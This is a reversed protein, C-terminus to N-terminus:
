QRLWDTTRGSHGSGAVRDDDAGAQGAEGTCPCKHPRAPLHEHNLSGVAHTTAHGGVRDIAEPDVTAELDIEIGIWLAPTLEVKRREPQARKLGAGEHGLPASQPGHAIRPPPRQRGHARNERAAHTDGVAQPRGPQPAITHPGHTVM